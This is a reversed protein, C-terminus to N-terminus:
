DVSPGKEEWARLLTPVAIKRNQAQRLLNGLLFLSEGGARGGTAIPVPAIIPEAEKLFGERYRQVAHFIRPVGHAVGIEIGEKLMSEFPRVGRFRLTDRLSPVGSLRTAGAAAALYVHRAWIQALLGDAKSVAQFRRGDLAPTLADLRAADAPRLMGLALRGIPGTQRVIGDADLTARCEFCALAVPNKPYRERWLDFHGVGDLLPVIITEPGIANRALFLGMQFVNARAAVIVADFPGGLDPPAVVTAPTMFRGLPTSIKLKHSILHSQRSPRVLFATDVGNEILAAGALMGNVGSGIILVQMDDRVDLNNIHPFIIVIVCCVLDTTPDKYFKKSLFDAVRCAVMATGKAM